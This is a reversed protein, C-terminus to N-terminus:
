NIYILHRECLRARMRAGLARARQKLHVARIARAPRPWWVVPRVLGAGRTLLGAGARRSRTPREGAASHKRGDRGFPSGM